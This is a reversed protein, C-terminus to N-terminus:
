GWRAFFGIWRAAGAMASSACVRHSSPLSYKGGVVQCIELILPPVPAVLTIGPSTVMSNLKRKEVALVTSDSCACFAHFGRGGRDQSRDAIPTKLCVRDSVWPYGPPHPLRRSRLRSPSRRGLKGGGAASGIPAEDGIDAGLYHFHSRAIGGDVLEVFVHFHLIQM